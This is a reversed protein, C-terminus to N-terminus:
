SIEMRKKTADYAHKFPILARRFLRLILTNRPYNIVNVPIQIQNALANVEASFGFPFFGLERIEPWGSKYYQAIDRLWVLLHSVNWRPAVQKNTIISNKWSMVKMLMRKAYENFVAGLIRFTVLLFGRNETDHSRCLIVVFFENVVFFKLSLLGDLFCKSVFEHM